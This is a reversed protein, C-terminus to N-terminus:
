EITLKVTKKIDTEHVFITLFSKENDWAWRDVDSGNEKLLQKKLKVVKPQPIGYVKLEYARKATQGQFEGKAPGIAIESKDGSRKLFSIPTWAFKGKQCDLSVGDDEYLNFEGSHQGYIKVILTDVPREDSYSMVPQMPIISGAKVFLPFRDLPYKQHILQRFKVETSKERNYQRRQM